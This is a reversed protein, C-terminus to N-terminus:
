EEEKEFLDETEIGELWLRAMEADSWIDNDGDQYEESHEDRYYNNPEAKGKLVAIQADIKAWNEDGFVSFEPLTKKMNGLGAIQRDIEQQTRKM